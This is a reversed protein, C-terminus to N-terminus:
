FVGESTSGFPPQPGGRLFQLLRTVEVVIVEPRGHHVAHRAGRAIVRWSVPSLSKLAEQERAWVTASERRKATWGEEPALM